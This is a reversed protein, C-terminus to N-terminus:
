ASTAQLNQLTASPTYGFQRKYERSFQAPSNYGVLNGVEGVPRGETLYTHARNLRISKAYQVPSVHMVEKFKKHFGSVSMCVLNALEDVSVNRELNNHLYEVAEGIQQVPGRQRLLVRLAPGNQDSLLRYYLEDVISEGLVAAEMPNSLARFLRLSVSMLDQNLESAWIGSYSSPKAESGRASGVSEMRLVLEALRRRDLKVAFGLLPKDESAEVLECEMAMPAFLALIRGPGYDYRRGDLYVNKRGQCAVVLAPEYVVPHRPRPESDRFTVVSPLPTTHLGNQPCLGDLLGKLENLQHELMSEVREPNLIDFPEAERFCNELATSNQAFFTSEQTNM